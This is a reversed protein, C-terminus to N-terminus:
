VEKEELRKSLENLEKGMSNQRLAHEWEEAAAIDESIGGQILFSKLSLYPYSFASANRFCPNFSLYPDLVQHQKM